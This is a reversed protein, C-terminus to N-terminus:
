LSLLFRQLENLIEDITKDMIELRSGTHHMTWSRVITGKFAFSVSVTGVPKEETGGAPGLIGSVAIGLMTELKRCVALAMEKTVEESVAGFQELATVDLLKEKVRNNYAVISGAFYSSANPNTVFAAALAGGTCSEATAVTIGKEILTNHVLGLIM